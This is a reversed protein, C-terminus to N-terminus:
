LAPPGSASVKRRVPPRRGRKAGRALGPEALNGASGLVGRRRRREGPSVRRWAPGQPTQDAPYLRRKAAAAAALRDAAGQVAQLQRPLLGALQEAPGGRLPSLGEDRLHLIQQGIGLLVPMQQDVEILRVDMLIGIEAIAPRRAALAEPHGRMRRAQGVLEGEVAEVEVVLTLHPEPGVSAGVARVGDIDQVPQPGFPGAWGSM